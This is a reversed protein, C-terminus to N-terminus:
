FTYFKTPSICHTLPEDHVNIDSIKEISEHFCVGIKLVNKKCKQFFRDYFGGGYGVRYGKEDFILLPTIVLDLQNEQIEVGNVPELIGYQNEQLITNETFLFHKMTHTSFDSKPIVLQIHPYQKKLFDIIIWTDIENNKLIPLFLHVWQINTFDISEFFLTCIQQSFHKCEQITLTKRKSLYEKRLEKKNM